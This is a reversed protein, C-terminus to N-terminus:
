QIAIYIKIECESMYYEFDTTYARTYATNEQSFYDWIERWTKIMVQPMSGVAHFVLYKGTQINVDELTISSDCTLQDTGALVTYEGSVNSEYNYYVGYVRNGSMYDVHVNKDFKEWLKPIKGGRPNMEIGNSTRITIGRIVKEEIHEIKM